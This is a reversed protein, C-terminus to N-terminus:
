GAQSISHWLSLMQQRAETADESNDETALYQEICTIARQNEGIQYYCWAMERYIWPASNILSMKGLASAGRRYDRNRAYIAKLNTLMRFLIEHKTYAALFEERWPFHTGFLDQVLRRCDAASLLQGGNFPDLFLDLDELAIIFHGPLGVGHAAIGLRRCIELYIVALTIPIGQRTDLVRNLYSNDPNYYDAANGSYGQLDFFYRNLSDVLSTEGEVKAAAEDVETAIRDLLNLYHALDLNPYEEGALYLAALDLEIESDERRAQQAFLQQFDGNGHLTMYALDV